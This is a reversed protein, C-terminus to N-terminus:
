INVNGGEKGGRREGRRDVAGVETEVGSDVPSVKDAQEDDVIRGSRQWGTGRRYGGLWTSARRRRANALYSGMVSIEGLNDVARM